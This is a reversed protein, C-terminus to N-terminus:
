IFAYDDAEVLATTTSLFSREQSDSVVELQAHASSCITGCNTCEYFKEHFQATDFSTEICLTSNCTPCCFTSFLPERQDKVATPTQIMKLTKGSYTWVAGCDGCERIDQSFGDAHLGIEIHERSRCLPCKM